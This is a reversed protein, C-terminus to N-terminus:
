RSAGTPALARALPELDAPTALNHVTVDPVARKALGALVRGPGIEVFTGAGLEVLTRQSERWRV